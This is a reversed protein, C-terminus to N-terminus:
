GGGPYYEHRHAEFHAAIDTFFRIAAEHYGRFSEATVYLDDGALPLQLSMDVAPAEPSVARSIPDFLAPRRERLQRASPGEAHKVANALLRLENITNWSDLQQLALDFQQRYWDSVAALQSDRPPRTVFAGDRCLDALEQELLHFLGAAFLNLTTQRLGAMTEYFIQGKAEAAEAAAEMGDDCHEGPPESGLREFEVNAVDNARRELDDFAPLLTGIVGDGYATVHRVASARTRWAMYGGTVSM